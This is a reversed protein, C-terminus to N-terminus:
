LLSWINTHLFGYTVCSSTMLMVHNLLVPGKHPSDVTLEHNVECLAVFASSQHQRSKLRFLRNVLYVLQWHNSVGHREHSTVTIVSGQFCLMLVNQLCACREHNCRGMLLIRIVKSISAFIYITDKIIMNATHGMHVWPAPQIYLRCRVLISFGM